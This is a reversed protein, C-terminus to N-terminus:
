VPLASMEVPVATEGRETLKPFSDDAFVPVAIQVSQSCHEM